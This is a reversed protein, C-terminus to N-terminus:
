KSSKILSLSAKTKTIISLSLVFEFIEKKEKPFFNSWFSHVKHIISIDM